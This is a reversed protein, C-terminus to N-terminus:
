MNDNQKDTDQTLVLNGYKDTEHKLFYVVQNSNTDIELNYHLFDINVAMSSFITAPLIMHYRSRKLPAAIIPLDIYYIGSLEVTMRYVNGIADGGFGSFTGKEIKPDRPINSKILFEEPATWIPILAGTDILAKCNPFISPVTIVPRSFSKDCEFVIKM